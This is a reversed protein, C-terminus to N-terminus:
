DVMSKEDRSKESKKVSPARESRGKVSGTSRKSKGSRVSKISARGEHKIESVELVSQQKM